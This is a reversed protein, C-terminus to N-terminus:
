SDVRQEWTALGYKFLTSLRKTGMNPNSGVAPDGFFNDYSNDGKGCEVGVVTECMKNYNRVTTALGEPEVETQRALEDVTDAAFMTGESPAKRPKMLAFLSNGLTYRNHYNTDMIMWAPIAKVKNNRAYQSHGADTYPRAKNMFRCGRADVIICHPWAREM